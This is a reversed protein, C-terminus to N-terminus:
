RRTALIYGIAFFARLRALFPKLLLSTHYTELNSYGKLRNLVKVRGDANPIREAICRLVCISTWM